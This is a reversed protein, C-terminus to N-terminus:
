ILIYAVYFSIVVCKPTFLSPKNQNFVWCDHQQLSTDIPSSTLWCNYRQQLRNMYWGCFSYASRQYEGAKISGSPSSKGKLVPRSCCSVMSASFCHQIPPPPVNRPYEVYVWRWFTPARPTFGQIKELTLSCSLYVGLQIFTFIFINFNFLGSLRYTLFNKPTNASSNEHTIYTANGYPCITRQWDYHRGYRGDMIVIHM